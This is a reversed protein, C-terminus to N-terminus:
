ILLYTFCNIKGPGRDSMLASFWTFFLPWIFHYIVKPKDLAGQFLYKIDLLHPDIKAPAKYRQAIVYIEASSSRSAAPKTAEV